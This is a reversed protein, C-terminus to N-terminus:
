TSPRPTPAADPPAKLPLVADECTYGYKGLWDNFRGISPVASNAFTTCPAPGSIYQTWNSPVQVQMTKYSEWRRGPDPPAPRSVQPDTRLETLSHAATIATAVAAAALVAAGITRGTRPRHLRAHVTDLLHADTPADAAHKALSDAILREM